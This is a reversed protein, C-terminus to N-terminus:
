ESKRKKVKETGADMNCKSKKPEEPSLCNRLSEQNSLVSMTSFQHLIKYFARLQSKNTDREHNFQPSPYIPPSYSTLHVVSILRGEQYMAYLAYAM